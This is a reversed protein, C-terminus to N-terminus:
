TGRPFLVCYLAYLMTSPKVTTKRTSIEYMEHHCKLDFNPFNPVVIQREEQVLHLFSFAVCKIAVRTGLAGDSRASVRTGPSCLCAGPGCILTEM